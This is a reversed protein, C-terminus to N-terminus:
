FGEDAPEEQPNHPVDPVEWFEADPSAFAVSVESTEDDRNRVHVVYCKQEKATWNNILLLDQGECVPMGLVILGGNADGDLTDVEQYFPTGSLARGYVTLPVGLEWSRRQAQEQPGTVAPNEMDVAGTTSLTGESADLADCNRSM